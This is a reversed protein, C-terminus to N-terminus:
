QYGTTPFCGISPIASRALCSAFPLLCCNVLVAKAAQILTRVKIRLAIDTFGLIVLNEQKRWNEYRKLVELTTM